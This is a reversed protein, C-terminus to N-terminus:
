NEFYRIPRTCICKPPKTKADGLLRFAALSTTGEEEVMYAIWTGSSGVRSFSTAPYNSRKALSPADEVYARGFDVEVLYPRVLARVLVRFVSLTERVCKRSTKRFNRDRLLDIM